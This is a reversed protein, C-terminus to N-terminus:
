RGSHKKFTEIDTVDPSVQLLNVLNDLKDELQLKRAGRQPGKKRVFVAPQCDKNLRLCRVSTLNHPDGTGTKSRVKRLQHRRSTHVQVESYRLELM